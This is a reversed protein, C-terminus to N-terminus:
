NRGVVPKQGSLLAAKPQALAHHSCAILTRITIPNEQVADDRAGHATLLCMRKPDPPHYTQAGDIALEVM